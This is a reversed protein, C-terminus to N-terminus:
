RSVFPPYSALDGRLHRALLLSQVHPLLGIAVKEKLYPHTVEEQKRAQWATLFLKRSDDKMVVAGSAQHEFGKATIQKRNVLSLVLRDVWWARFEELIDQALSDRGPRDAHLFGAQPDLGVGQLASAIEQGLLSYGFSLMANIADKPPRRNRGAFPFDAKVSPLLLEGFAGFYIAAAEGEFGRLSDLNQCERIMELRQGLSTIAKALVANDGHNRLQRQFVGRSSVIKAAIIGRAVSLPQQQSLQYQKKRLLINGSQRGHFRGLFRGYETFMSLGIGQEGCFGMLFPSILVNGFCYLSQVSHAPIQLLKKREQEIVITEREKHVYTGQRTIYLSNQLKKM